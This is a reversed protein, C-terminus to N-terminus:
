TCPWQAGDKKSADRNFYVLEDNQFGKEGGNEILHLLATPVDKVMFDKLAGDASSRPSLIHLVISLNTTGPWSVVLFGFTAEARTLLEAVDKLLKEKEAKTPM